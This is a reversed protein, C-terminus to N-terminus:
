DTKHKVRPREGLRRETGNLLRRINDRHRVLALSTLAVALVLNAVAFNGKALVFLPLSALGVLSGLSVTRSILITFVGLGVCMATILPDIILFVGISTAIGKGGRLGLLVNFNNGLVTALGVLAIGWTGVGVLTPILTAIAGKLPDAMVVIVAPLAGLTRLVNTAGINGSGAQQINVGRAKAVLYGTPITGIFYGLIITVVVQAVQVM